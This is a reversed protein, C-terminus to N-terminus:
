ALYDSVQMNLMEETKDWLADIDEEQFHARDIEWPIPDGTLENKAKPAYVVGPKADDAILAEVAPLAGDYLSHSVGFLQMVPAILFKFTYKMMPAIDDAYMLNTRANGPHCALALSSSGMKEFEQSLRVSHLISCLKARCYEEMQNYESADACQLKNVDLDNKLFKKYGISTFNVIRSGDKLVPLLQTTLAWHGFYNLFFNSEFGDVTQVYRAGGGGANNALYDIKKYKATIRACFDKISQLSMIDVIELELDASPLEHLMSAKADNLKGENRAAMIVKCGHKALHYVIGYGTGSNSGTVIAVKGDLDPINKSNNM